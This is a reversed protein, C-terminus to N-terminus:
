VDLLGRTEYVSPGEDLIALAMGTVLASVGDIRERSRKKSPKVNGNGDIDPIANRVCWRLVPHGDHRLKGDLVLQEVKKTASTLTRMTQEVKVAPITDEILHQIFGQANWPDVAVAAVDYAAMYARITADIAAYDVVPGPTAILFGQDVWTQYDVRDRQSRIAIQEAPCWFDARVDVSGDANPFIRVLASLDTTTSLDLGLFVRRRTPTEEAAPLLACPDWAELPLWPNEAQVRQNLYYLRFMRAQSPLRQAKAAFTRMEERSRFDGLAPNALPWVAEDWHDATLPVEFIHASFTPDVIAGSAVQKGYDVQESMLAHEDDTQTSIILMLPEARAGTSTTLAIYLDQGLGHGWQALEDLIIVSPSLGHAKKADSSLARFETGSVMDQIMKAHRQVNCRAELAPNDQLFAVIENFILGSQDRDSAAAVIQGRPEVEPGVLHALAIAACLSTKGNKRGMTLLGTRVIRKGAADTAYWARIIVRQWERLLFQRGAHAGSTVRLSEIFAIVRDARPLTPNEWAPLDVGRRAPALVTPPKAGIGRLGM